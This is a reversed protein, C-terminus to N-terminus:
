TVRSETNLLADVVRLPMGDITTVKRGQVQEMDIRVNTFYLRQKRIFEAFTRNGYWAARVGDLSEVRSIMSTLMDNLDASSGSADKTLNSVDINCGRSVYRWDKLALGLDWMWHDRFATFNNGNSDQVVDKGLDEHSLGAMSGKPYIGHCVDEHWAILWVSMNDSGTGGGDIINDANEASLDSFYHALGTFEDPNVTEDGYFLTRAAKIGFGQVHAKAKRMRYAGVDGSLAALKCDVQSFDELMACTFDVQAESSKTNPVGSNLRRFSPEPLGVRMTAREGTPLNGEMMVWDDLIPNRQSLMEIIRAPKGDPDMNKALDALNPVGEM